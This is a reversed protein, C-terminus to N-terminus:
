QWQLRYTIPKGTGGSDGTRAWERYEGTISTIMTNLFSSKGVGPAGIVAVTLPTENKEGIRNQLAELAALKQEEANSMFEKKYDDGTTETLSTSSSDSKIINTNVEAAM